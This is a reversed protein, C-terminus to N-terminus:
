QKARTQHAGIKKHVKAPMGLTVVNAPLFRTVLSGAAVLTNEGITVGKAVTVDLGLSIFRRRESVWQICRSYKHSLKNSTDM